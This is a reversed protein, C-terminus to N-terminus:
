RLGGEEDDIGLFVVRGAKGQGAALRELDAFCARVHDRSIDAGGLGGIFNLAPRAVGRRACAALVTSFM